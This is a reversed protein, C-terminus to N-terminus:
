TAKDEVVRRRCERCVESRELRIRRHRAQERPGTQLLGVLAHARYNGERSFSRGEV